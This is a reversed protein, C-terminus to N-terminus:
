GSARRVSALRPGGGPGVRPGPGSPAFALLRPQCALASICRGEGRAPQLDRCDSDCPVYCTNTAACNAAPVGLYESPTGQFPNICFCLTRQREEELQELQELQKEEELQELQELDEETMRRATAISLLAVVAAILMLSRMTRHTHVTNLPQHSLISHRPLPDPRRKYPSCARVTLPEHSIQLSRIRAVLLQRDNPTAPSSNGISKL